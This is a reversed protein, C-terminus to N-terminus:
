YPHTRIPVIYCLSVSQSALFIDKYCNTYCSLERSRKNLLVIKHAALKIKRVALIRKM